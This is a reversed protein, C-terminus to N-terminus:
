SIVGGGLCIEGNYFVVSQGPTIAWQPADFIVHYNDDSIKKVQCAQALQRYRTKAQCRFSLDPDNGSVWHLQHCFLETKYLLPHDHGQVIILSNDQLNKEAVYWPEEQAHKLGGIGLGQRQGITYYMLGDHQGIVENKPTKIQGPKTPLYSSLFNKFRREGIFCIGTSDKKNYTILGEQEAIERVKNKKLEGIPFLTPQLQHQQLTYLFYTQDKNDDLGTLLFCESPNHQIRAYHGTAIKDAGLHKAYELFAKFKIEKNCLVDPNPTRGAQYEKLFHDFVNDWYEASFNVRHLKIGLRDCVMEADKLDQAASCFEETDDEEWNKMFLGEVEYGAKKLLLASVSSDVGGSMAVIVKITKIMFKSPILKLLNYGKKGILLISRILYRCLLLLNSSQGIM